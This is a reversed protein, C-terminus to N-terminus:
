PLLVTTKEIVFYLTMVNNDNPYDLVVERYSTGEPLTSILISVPNGETPTFKDDDNGATWDREYMDANISITEGTPNPVIRTVTSSISHISTGFAWQEYNDRSVNFFYDNNWRIWGFISLGTSGFEDYSNEEFKIKDLTVKVTVNRNRPVAERITYTSALVIKGIANDNIYRLKYSIPAGPSEKSYKGGDLIYQKFGDFGNIAQVSGSGSGGRVYVKITSGNLIQSYEASISGSANAYAADLAAKVELNSYSSEITFLALRGYTVTAVYMPMNTGIASSNINENFFGAPTAIPDMDVTYYTQIFKAALRSKINKNSFDFSGSISFGGTYSANVALKFQSESYVNEVTFATIAPQEGTVQQNLIENLADRVTSLKPDQVTRSVSGQVGQLSASITIPKRSAVIPVYRGDNITNGQILGGPFIVDSQPDLAIHTDFGAAAEYTKTTYVYESDQETTEAIMMPEKEEPQSFKPLGNIFNNIESDNITSEDSVVEDKCGYALSLAAAVVILLSRNNKM